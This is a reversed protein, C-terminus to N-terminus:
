NPGVNASGASMGASETVPWEKGLVRAVQWLLRERSFRDLSHPSTLMGSFFVPSKHGPDVAGDFPLPADENPGAQYVVGGIATWTISSSSACDAVATVVFKRSRAKAPLHELV